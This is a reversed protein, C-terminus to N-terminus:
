EGGRARVVTFYGLMKHYNSTLVSCNGLRMRFEDLNLIWGKM